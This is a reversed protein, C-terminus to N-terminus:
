DFKTLYYSVRIQTSLNRISTGMGGGPRVNLIGYSLLVGLSIDGLNYEGGVQMGFDLPKLTDPHESNLDNGIKGYSKTKSINNISYERLAFSFYPGLEFSFNNSYYYKIKIPLKIYRSYSRVRIGLQDSAYGKTTYNLETVFSYDNNILFESKIGYFLAPLFGKGYTFDDPVNTYSITSFNIGTHLGIRINNTYGTFSIIYIIFFIYIKIKSNM